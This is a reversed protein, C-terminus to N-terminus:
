LTFEKSQFILAELVQNKGVEGVRAKMEGRHLDDAEAV